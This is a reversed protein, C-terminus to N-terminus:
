TNLVSKVYASPTIGELKKFARNFASKSNFGAEYALGLLTNEHHKSAEIQHKFYEIRYSNIFDFFRQNAEANILQSLLYPPMALQQSLDQLTLNPSLYPREQEMHGQLKKFLYQNKPNQITPSTEKPSTAQKNSADVSNNILVPTQQIGWFGIILVFLCLLSNGWQNGLYQSPLWNSGEFSLFVISLVILLIISRILFGLWAFNVKELNSTIDELRQQYQQLYRFSYLSYTLLSTIKLFTLIIEGKGNNVDVFYFVIWAIIAPVFHLFDQAVPQKFDPAILSRTYLWLFPGHLFISADNIPYLQYPIAVLGDLHLFILLPISLTLLWIFLIWDNIVKNKKTLLIILVFVLIILSIVSLYM